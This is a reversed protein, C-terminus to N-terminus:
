EVEGAAGDHDRVIAPEEIAHRRVDEGELAVALGRPELARPAVVDLPHLLGAAGLRELRMADLVLREDAGLPVQSAGPGSWTGVLNSGPGSWTRSIDARPSCTPSSRTAGSTRPS